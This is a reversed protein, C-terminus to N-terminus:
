NKQKCSKEWHVLLRSIYSEILSVWFLFSYQTNTKRSVSMPLPLPDFVKKGVGKEEMLLTHNLIHTLHDVLVMVLDADKAIVQFSKIM